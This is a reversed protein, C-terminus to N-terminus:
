NEPTNDNNNLNNDKNKYENITLMLADKIAKSVVEAETLTEVNELIQQNSILTTIYDADIVVQFDPENQEIISVEKVVDYEFTIRLKIYGINGKKSVLYIIQNNEEVVSLVEFDKQEVQEQLIIDASEYDKLVNKLLNKLARSTEIAGEIDNVNNISFQNNVLTDLYNINNIKQYNKENQELVQYSIVKENNIIIEAKITSNEGVQTAVYTTKTGVTDRSIINFQEDIKKAEAQYINGIYFGLSIILIWSVFYPLISIRFDFKAKAGIKDFIRVFLNMALISIFVSEPLPLLYRLAVTLIGLFLGYLIQGQSTVPSTVPDTTIFIAGFILSGSLIQFLPYWVGLGNINGILFTLLFVASVYVIPIKWKIAKTLILYIFGILCCLVSIAGPVTGLFFDWLNGYPKVLTEYVGIGEVLTANALPTAKFTELELGNLYSTNGTFYSSFFIFLFLYGVLAPNLINRGFGGFIMKGIITAIIAAVVLWVIPIDLPVLLGLFIGTLFSYSSSLYKLINKGRKKLFIIAYLNETIICVVTPILILFLPNFVQLLSIKGAQYPLIGNKYVSFIIVPLLAILTNIMIKRTTNSSKIYPGIKCKTNKM